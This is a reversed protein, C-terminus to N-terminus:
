RDPGPRVHGSDLHGSLLQESAALHRVVEPLRRVRGPGSVVGTGPKQEVEGGGGVSRYRHSSGFYVGPGRM